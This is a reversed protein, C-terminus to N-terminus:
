LWLFVKVCVCVRARWACVCVSEEHVCVRVGHMCARVCVLACVSRQGDRVERWARNGREREGKRYKERMM